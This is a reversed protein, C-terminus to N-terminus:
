AAALPAPAEASDPTSAHAIIQFVVYYPNGSVSTLALTEGTDLISEKRQNLIDVIRAVGENADQGQDLGWIGSIRVLGAVDGIIAVAPAVDDFATGQTYRQTIFSTQSDPIAVPIMDGTAWAVGTKPNTNSAGPGGLAIGMIDAPLPGTALSESLNGDADVGVVEGEFFTESAKMPFHRKNPVGGMPSQWVKIDNKAM